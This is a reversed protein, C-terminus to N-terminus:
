DSLIFVRQGLKNTIDSRLRAQNPTDQKGDIFLYSHPKSTASNFISLFLNSKNPLIKRSLSLPISMDLPNKFVVLYHACKLLTTRESGHYYLNQLSFIISVRSHQLKNAFLDTVNKNSCSSTMCDDLIFLTNKFRSEIHPSFDDPIGHITTINLHQFTQKLNKVTGNEEGYFWVINDFQKDILRDMSHLLSTIFFSKGSLPPGSVILSFPCKLRADFIISEDSDSM